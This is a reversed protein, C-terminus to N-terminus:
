KRERLLAVTLERAQEQTMCVLFKENKTNELQLCISHSGYKIIAHDNYMLEVISEDKKEHYM